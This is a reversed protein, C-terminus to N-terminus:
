QPASETAGALDEAAKPPAQTTALEAAVIASDEVDSGLGERIADGIDNLGEILLKSRADLLRGFENVADIVSLFSVASRGRGQSPAARQARTTKKGGGPPRGRKKKQAVRPPAAKRAKKVAKKKVTKKAAKKKAAKKRDYIGKPM